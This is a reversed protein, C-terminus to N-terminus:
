HSISLFHKWERVELGSFNSFSDCLKVLGKGKAETRLAKCPYTELPVLHNPDWQM